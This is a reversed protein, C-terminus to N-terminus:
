WSRRHLSGAAKVLAREFLESEPLKGLDTQDITRVDGSHIRGIFEALETATLGNADLPGSYLLTLAGPKAGPVDISAEAAIAGLQEVTLYSESKTNNEAPLDFIQQLTV